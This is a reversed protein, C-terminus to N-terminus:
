VNQRGKNMGAKIQTIQEYGDKTTHAKSRIIEVAKAWDSFYQSKVGLIPYEIFFPLINEQIDKFNGCKYEAHKKYSYCVGCGFYDVFHKMLLIDRSHQTLVFAMEVRGGATYANDTRLTMMFSGDGSAFGAIWYPDIPLLKTVDVLPRDVPIHDPFAEKLAPTLGRNMSARINIISNLGSSTLHEGRKMMIVVEKFLLYDALKQTKLPYKDFHPLIVNIIQDLSRVTFDCCGNREKSVQGIGGFFDKINNLLKVDWKHLNISFNAEIKWGLNSRPKKRAIVMFCGEADTFGTVFLPFIVISSTNPNTNHSNTYLRTPMIQNSPNKIWRNREFGLLTCRLYSLGYWSAYVRQEKVTQPKYLSLGTVSKSGRNDMEKEIMKHSTVTESYNTWGGIVKRNHSPIM